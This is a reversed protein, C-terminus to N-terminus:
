AQAANQTSARYKASYVPFVVLAVVGSAVGVINSIEAPLNFGIKAQLIFSVDVATM